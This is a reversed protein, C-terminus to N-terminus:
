SIEIRFSSFGASRTGKIFFISNGSPMPLVGRTIIGSVKCGKTLSLIGCNIACAPNSM